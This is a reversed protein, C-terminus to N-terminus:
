RSSLPYPGGTGKCAAQLGRRTLRLPDDIGMAEGGQCWDLGFEKGSCKMGKELQARKVTIGVQASQDIGLARGAFTVNARRPHLEKVEGLTGM